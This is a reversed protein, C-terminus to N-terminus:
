RSRRYVTTLIGAAVVVVAALYLRDRPMVMGWLRLPAAPLVAAIPRDTSGVNLTVVAQLAVMLGVSAVVRALPGARALPRFVLGHVALGLAGAVATAVVLAPFFAVSPALHVRAPIGVVPLILDGAVRLEVFVYTAYMAMAGHAFNVVRSARWTLVLGLGIAAYVAGAGVGLVLFM